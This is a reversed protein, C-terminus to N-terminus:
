SPGLPAGPMGSISSGVDRMVVSQRSRPMTTASIVSARKEPPDTPSTIPWTPGSAASPPGIASISSPSSITASRLLSSSFQVASDSGAIRALRLAAHSLATASLPPMWGLQPM